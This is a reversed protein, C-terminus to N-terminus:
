LPYMRGSLFDFFPKFIIFTMRGEKWVFVLSIGFWKMKINKSRFRHNLTCGLPLDVGESSLPPLATMWVRLYPPPPSGTEFINKEARRDETQDLFLPLARAWWDAGRSGGSCGYYRRHKWKYLKSLMNKSLNPIVNVAFLFHLNYWTVLNKTKVQRKSNYRCFIVLNVGTEDM